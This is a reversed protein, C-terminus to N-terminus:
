REHRAEVTQLRETLKARLRTLRTAVAGQQIGSIEEIEGNTLGELHLLLIQRNVVDLEQIARALMRQKETRILDHEPSPSPSAYERSTDLEVESRSRRRAKGTWTLAVNHAIRYIWTRESSDGRFSPLAKWIAFLIEQVLDDADAGTYARALRVIPAHYLAALSQFRERTGSAMPVQEAEVM